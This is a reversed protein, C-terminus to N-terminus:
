EKWSFIFIYENYFTVNGIKLMSVDRLMRKFYLHPSIKNHIEIFRSNNKISELFDMMLDYEHKDKPIRVTNPKIGAEEKFYFDDISNFIIVDGYDNTKM